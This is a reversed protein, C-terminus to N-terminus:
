VRSVYHVGLTVTLCGENVVGREIFSKRTKENTDFGHGSSLNCM